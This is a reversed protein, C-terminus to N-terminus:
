GWIGPSGHAVFLWDSVVKVGVVSRTKDSIDFGIGQGRTEVFRGYTKDRCLFFLGVPKGLPSQFGESAPLGHAFGFPCM